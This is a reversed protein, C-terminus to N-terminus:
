KGSPCGCVGEWFHTSHDGDRNGTKIGLALHLMEHKWTKKRKHNVEITSKHILGRLQKRKGDVPASWNRDWLRFDFHHIRNPDIGVWGCVEEWAEDAFKLHKDTVKGYVFPDIMFYGKPTPVPEFESVIDAGTIPCFIALVALGVLLNKMEEEGKKL